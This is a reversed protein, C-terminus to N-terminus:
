VLLRGVMTDRAGFDYQGHGGHQALCHARAQIGAPTTARLEDMRDLLLEMRAFFPASALGAEGDDMVCDPGTSHIIATRRECADFEACVAILEADPRTSPIDGYAVKAVVPMSVGAALAGAAGALLHRRTSM